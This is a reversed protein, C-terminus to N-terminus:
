GNGRDQRGQGAAATLGGGGAGLPQRRPKAPWVGVLLRVGKVGLPGAAGGGGTGRGRGPRCGAGGGGATGTVGTAPRTSSGTATTPIAHRNGPPTSEAAANHSRTTLPVSATPSNGASRPQSKPPNNSGSGSATPLVYVREPPNRASAASNSASNKPIEPRSAWVM